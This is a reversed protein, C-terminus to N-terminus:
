PTWACRFGFYYRRSSPKICVRYNCHFFGALASGWSGGRLVRASEDNSDTRDDTKDQACEGNAYSDACWELVNGSMQYLGYPSQGAAYRWVDCTSADDRNVNHRCKNQDWDGGWPYRRGDVGRAGKEWELEQPLRLGAWACYTQADEWNVCVVPHNAKEAPFSAGKWVPDGLDSSDPPPYGTAKVFRKYQANTVPCLALYFARLSAKFPADKEGGALFEGEPILALLSGDRKNEVLWEM